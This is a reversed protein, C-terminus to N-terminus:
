PVIGIFLALSRNLRILIDEDVQGIQQTIRERRLAVIKDVMIQSNNKLGTLKTAPIDIRFLPANQLDSTVLCVLISAHVENFLNSQIVVAPRPKGYDGPASVIVLDGRKM